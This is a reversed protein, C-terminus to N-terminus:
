AYGKRDGYHRYLAFCFLGSIFLVLTSPEPVAPPTLTVFVTGVNYFFPLGLDPHGFLRVRATGSSLIDFSGLSSLDTNANVGIAVNVPIIVDLVLIEATPLVLSAHFSATLYPCLTPFGVSCPGTYTTGLFNGGATTGLMTYVDITEGPRGTNGVSTTATDGGSLGFDSGAISISVGSTTVFMSGSSLPLSAGAAPAASILMAFIIPAYRM